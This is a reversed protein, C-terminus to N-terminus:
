EKVRLIRKTDTAKQQKIALYIQAGDALQFQLTGAQVRSCLGTPTKHVTAQLSVTKDHRNLRLSRTVCPESSTPKTIIETEGWAEVLYENAESILFPTHDATLRATTEICRNETHHCKVTTTQIAENATFKEMAWTGQAVVEQDWDEDQLLFKPLFPLFRDLVKNDDTLHKITNYDLDGTEALQVDHQYHRLANKTLDDFEGTYPGVGYGFRGLFIQVGLVLVRYEEPRNKKLDQIEQNARLNKPAPPVPIQQNSQSSHDSHSDKAIASEVSSFLLFSCTLLRLWNM